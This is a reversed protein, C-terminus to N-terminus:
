GRLLAVYPPAPRPASFRPCIQSGRLRALLWPASRPGGVAEVRTMSGNEAAPRPDPASPAARRPRPPHQGCIQPAACRGAGRAGGAAAALQRSADHPSAEHRPAHSRTGPRASQTIRSCRDSKGGRGTVDRGKVKKKCSM